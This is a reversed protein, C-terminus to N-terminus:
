EFPVEKDALELRKKAVLGDIEDRIKKGDASRRNPLLKSRGINAEVVEIQDLSNCREIAIKANEIAQKQAEEGANAKYIEDSTAVSLDVGIGMMGLARGVASTEANELASQKNIYGDGIVEMANAVFCRREDAIDPYVECTAIIRDGDIVQVSNRISGNPYHKTFYILRENVPVYDKGKINVTKM